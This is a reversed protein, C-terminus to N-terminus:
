FNAPPAPFLQLLSVPLINFARHPVIPTELGNQYFFPIACPLLLVTGDLEYDGMLSDFCSFSHRPVFNLLGM